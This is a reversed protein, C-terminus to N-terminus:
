RGNSTSTVGRRVYSLGLLIVAAMLLVSVGVVRGGPSIFYRVPPSQHTVLTM